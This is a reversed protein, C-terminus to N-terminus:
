SLAPSTGAAVLRSLCHRSDGYSIQAATLRAFLRGTQTEMTMGIAGHLQVATEGVFRAARNVKLKVADLALSREIEPAKLMRAGYDLMARATELEVYMDVAAHQLVQFSALPQGFQHRTRLYEVSLDLLAEMAGVMGACTLLRGRAAAAALLGSATAGDAILASIPLTLDAMVADASATGKPSLFIAPQGELEAVLLHITAETWGLVVPLTGNLIFRDPGRNAMVTNAGGIALASVATGDLIAPLFDAVAPCDALEALLPVALGESTLYPVDIAASGLRRVLLLLEPLGLGAGGVSEPLTVGLVGLQALEQWLDQPEAATSLIADLSDLLMRHEDTSVDM